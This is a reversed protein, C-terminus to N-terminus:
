TASMVFQFLSVTADCAKGGFASLVPALQIDAKASMGSVIVCVFPPKAYALKKVRESILSRSFICQDGVPV